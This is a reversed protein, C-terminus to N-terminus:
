MIHKLCGTYTGRTVFWSNLEELGYVLVLGYVRYTLYRFERM